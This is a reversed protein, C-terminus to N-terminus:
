AREFNIASAKITITKGPAEIDLNTSAHIRLKKSSLDISNGKADKLQVLDPAMTFSDGHSNEILVTKDEDDLRLRQGGPTVLAYRRVASDKVVAEPPATEGYFGGMVIGQAPDGRPFVLLVKDGVDPLVILGKDSGAGPIAVQLWDTEIDGYTPLSVKARGLSEPDDVQTVRGLTTIASRNRRLPAPPSTDIESLFGGQQDVTHTVSSLVYRGVFPGAIGAIEVPTGPSLRPDGEAIGRLTVERAVRSDLEAQALGELQIDDQVIEDTLACTGTCGVSSPVLEIAVRRGCRAESVHEQHVVTRWPDWGSSDVTRCIQDSNVEIRAQLLSDRLRLSIPTGLGELTFLHLTEARLAFYMGSSEALETLFELDSQRFQVLRQRLPGAQDSSVSLGLDSVLTRALEVLTMQVHARVPQRKRLQHLIDYGRVRVERQNSAGYEYELSTVQGRFLAEEHGPVTIELSTGPSMSTAEALAGKPDVFILECLTPLSLRQQVRVERLALADEPTLPIGGVQIEVKPVAVLTKM